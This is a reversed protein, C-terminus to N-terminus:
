KLCYPHDCGTLLGFRREGPAAKSLVPELCIGCEITSSGAACCLLCAVACCKDTPSCSRMGQPRSVLLEMSGSIVM